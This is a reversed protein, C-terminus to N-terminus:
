TANEDSPAGRSGIAIVPRGEEPLEDEVSRWRIDEPKVWVRSERKERRAGEPRHFLRSALAVISNEFRAREIYDYEIGSPMESKLSSCLGAIRPSKFTTGHTTHAFENRIKRVLSIEAYEFEDIFGLALCADTRSSFTGLPSNGETLLRSSAKEHCLFATLVQLLKEDIHAPGVLALGRDSERQLEVFFQNLENFAETNM